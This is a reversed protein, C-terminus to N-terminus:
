EGRKYSIQTPIPADAPYSIYYLTLVDDEIEFRNGYEQGEVFTTQTIPRFVKDWSTIEKNRFFISDGKIDFNGIIETSGVIENPNEDDFGYNYGTHSYKGNTEFRLNRESIFYRTDLESRGSPISQILQWNGIFKDTLDIGLESDKKECSFFLIMLVTIGLFIRFNM